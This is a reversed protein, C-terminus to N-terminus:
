TTAEWLGWSVNMRDRIEVSTVYYGKSTLAEAVEEPDVSGPDATEIVVDM